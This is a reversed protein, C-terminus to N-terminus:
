HISDVYNQVLINLNDLRQKINTLETEACRKKEVSLEVRLRDLEDLARRPEKSANQVAQSALNQPPVSQGSGEKLKVMFPNM